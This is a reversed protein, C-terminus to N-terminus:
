ELATTGASKPIPKNDPVLPNASLNEEKAKPKARNRRKPKFRDLIYKIFERETLEGRDELYHKTKRKGVKIYRGNKDTYVKRRLHSQKKKQKRKVEPEAM